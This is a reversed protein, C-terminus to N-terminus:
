EWKKMYQVRSIIFDKRQGEMEKKWLNWDLAQGCNPCYPCGINNKRVERCRPCRWKAEYTAPDTYVEPSLERGTRYNENPNSGALRRTNERNDSKQPNDIVNGIIEGECRALYYETLPMPICFPETKSLADTMIPEYYWGIVEDVRELTEVDIVYFKGFAIKVLDKANGHCMLIDNEWINKGNKDNFDTCQCITDPDILYETGSSVDAIYNEGALYGIVWEGDLHKNFELSHVHKAKFLYRNSM